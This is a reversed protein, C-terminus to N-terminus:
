RGPMTAPPEASTRTTPLTTPFEGPHERALEQEIKKHGQIEGESRNARHIFQEHLVPDDIELTQLVTKRFQNRLQMMMLQVRQDMVAKRVAEKVDEFKVAKPPIREVMQILHYAGDAEITDSIQGPSLSFAAERFVEPVAMSQRSFPPMLGGLPATNPDRSMERAVQEFSEGNALRRKAEAVERPNALRIDRVKATEGYLAAFALKLDKESITNNVLPEAIKRLYANTEIVLDFEPRSIHQQVLFQDLLSDADPGPNGGFMKDVTLQQEHKIDAPTVTIGARAAQQKALDLQVLNLLVNLGYGAILPKDLEELTIPEGNVKAIVRSTPQTSPETAAAVRTTAQMPYRDMEGQEHACSAMCLALCGIIM